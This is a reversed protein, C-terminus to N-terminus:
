VLSPFYQCVSVPPLHVFRSYGRVSLWLWVCTVAVPSDGAGTADHRCEWFCHHSGFGRFRSYVPPSSCHTSVSVVSRRVNPAIGLWNFSRSIVCGEQLSQDDILFAPHFLHGLRRLIVPKVLITVAGGAVVPSLPLITRRERSM